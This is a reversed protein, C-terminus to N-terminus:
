VADDDRCRITGHICEAALAASIAEELEDSTAVRGAGAPNRFVGFLSRGHPAPLFVVELRDGVVRQHAAMGPEVGLQRRIDEDLTIQGRNNVRHM